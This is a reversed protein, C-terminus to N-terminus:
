TYLVFFFLSGQGWSKNVHNKVGLAYSRLANMMFPKILQDHTQFGNRYLLYYRSSLM